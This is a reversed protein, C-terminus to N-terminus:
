TWIEEWNRGLLVTEPQLTVGQRRAVETRVQRVLALVDSARAAGRNIIFNAHKTSVEADGVRSGMLGAAQILRGAADGPPNRFMCGASAERPQTRKRIQAYGDLRARVAAQGVEGSTAFLAELVTVGHLEPCDRYVPSFDRRERHEVTGDPMLVTVERVREFIMGGMAGANMRLSGGVTGPIGDLFELGGLGLRSAESCLAKLRAGGGARLCRDGYSEIGTWAPGYLRLALGDFGEDPVVLNSGRGLLFVAIGAERAARQLRVLDDVGAPEAYWRAPGGVRLTTSSALPWDRECRTAPDLAPRLLELWDATGVAAAAPARVEATRARVWTHGWGDIDGAGAFLVVAPGRLADELERDLEEQWSVCRSRKALGPSLEAELDRTTGGAVPAEGAPYVDLMVLRDAARLVRAFDARLRATRTYRHPQFVVVLSWDPHCAKAWAFLAALETPHHAYDEYVVLGPEAHLRTQRRRLGAFRALPAPNLPRGAVVEAALWALAANRAQFTAGALAVAREGCRIITGGESPQTWADAGAVHDLTLVRVWPEVSARALKELAGGAPVVVAETTRGLLRGFAAHLAAEDPYQDPHDWDLNVVVTVAPSFGEQTGDSEDVEAVLWPSEPDWGGPASGDAPLGGIAWSMPVGSARLLAVMCATTSTKGHSGAVAVLRRTAALRALCEGRREVPLGRHLAEAVLPHEVPVASSRVLRTVGEPWDLGGPLAVGGAELVTRVVASLAADQGIVTHGQGRLILALPAMGMGGVGVMLITEAQTSM